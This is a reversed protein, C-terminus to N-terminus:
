FVSEHEFFLVSINKHLSKFEDVKNMTLEFEIYHDFLSVVDPEVDDGLIHGVKTDDVEQELHHHGDPDMMDGHGHHNTPDPLM